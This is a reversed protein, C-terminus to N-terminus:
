VAQRCYALINSSRMWRDPDHKPMIQLHKLFM